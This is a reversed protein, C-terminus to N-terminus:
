ADQSDRPMGSEVPASHLLRSLLRLARKTTRQSAKLAKIAERIAQRRAVDDMVVRAM